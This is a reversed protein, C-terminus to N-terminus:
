VFVWIAAHARQTAGAQLLMQTVISICSVTAEGIQIVVSRVSRGTARDSGNDIPEVFSESVLM